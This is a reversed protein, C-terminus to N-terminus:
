AFLLNGGLSEVIGSLLGQPHPHVIQIHDWVSDVPQLPENCVEDLPAWRNRSAARKQIRRGIRVVAIRNQARM